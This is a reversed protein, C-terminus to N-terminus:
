NGGSRLARLLVGLDEIRTKAPSTDELPRDFRTGVSSTKAQQSKRVLDRFFQAEEDTAAPIRIKDTGPWLIDENAMGSYPGEKFGTAQDIFTAGNKAIDNHLQQEYGQAKGAIEDGIGPPRGLRANADKLLARLRLAKAVAGAGSSVAEAAPGLAAGAVTGTAADLAHGATGVDKDSGGAGALLGLKGGTNMATRLRTLLPAAPAGATMAMAAPTGGLVELALTRKPERARQRNLIDRNETLAADYTEKPDGGSVAAMGAQLGAGLRNGTGLAAGNGFAATRGQIEEDTADPTPALAERIRQFRSAM